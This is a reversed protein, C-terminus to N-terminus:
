RTARRSASVTGAPRRTRATTSVTNGTVENRDGSTVNIGDEGAEEVVNSSILNGSAKKHPQGSSGSSKVAQLGNRGVNTVTCGEIRNDSAALLEIGDGPVNSVTCDRVVNNDATQRVGGMVDKGDFVIGRGRSASVRVREVLTNNGADFDIADSTARLAGGASVTMDRLSWETPV